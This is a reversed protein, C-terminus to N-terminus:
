PTDKTIRNLAHTLTFYRDNSGDLEVTSNACAEIEARIHSDDKARVLMWGLLFHAFKPQHLKEIEAITRKM